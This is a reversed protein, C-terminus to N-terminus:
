AFLANVTERTYDTLAPFDVHGRYLAELDDHLGKARRLKEVAKELLPDHERCPSHFDTFSLKLQPFLMAEPRSPDFPSPCLIVEYGLDAAERAASELSSSPAPLCADAHYEATQMGRCTVARLFCRKIQGPREAKRPLSALLQRLQEDTREREEFEIRSLCDYALRYQERYAESLARLQEGEEPTFPRRFFAGLNVYDSDAGFIKPELVHPATGDAWALHLSPLYVGDLSDPDGSCFVRQVSIGQQEAADAIRRMFSSKGTGPGGKIIHLFDQPDPPFRDYLSAFGKQTNAGLFYSKLM